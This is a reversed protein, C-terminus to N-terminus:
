FASAHRLRGGRAKKPECPVPAAEIRLLTDPETTRRMV